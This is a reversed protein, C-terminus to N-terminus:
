PQQAAETVQQLALLGDLPQGHVLHEVVALHDALHEALRAREAGPAV